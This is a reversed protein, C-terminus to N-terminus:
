QNKEAFQNIFDVLLKVSELSVANYLSARIGGVLRHGALGTLKKESAESLFRKQVDDSNLTFVVNMNSRVAPNAVRINYFGPYKELTKYLLAAKENNQKEIADIGGNDLLKKTVLGMIHCTFIPITNYTSNAKVASPFHLAIPVIPLGYSAMEKDTPQELLSKKIIYITLGALGVNKQAGGYILGYKSVDVKKSLIDSSMDAVLEVNEPLYSKDPVEKFETGNVTENDCVYLYATSDADIPKWDSYSPINSYGGEKTDVVVDVDFGLRSAEKAAKDSWSGTVAYALKAKKGDHKKAYNAVLNYAVSSFGTTGGGQLFFVEHTDPVNLLEKFNKKTDNIVNIATETRHGIEGLGLGVGQYNVLDLAAQKLVDSPLKAPGAGFHHPEDRNLISDAM